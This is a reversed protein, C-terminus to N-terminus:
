YLNVINAYLVFWCCILYLLILYWIFLLNLLLNCYILNSFLNAAATVAARIVTQLALKTQVAPQVQHRSWVRGLGFAVALLNPLILYYPLDFVAICLYIFVFVFVLILLFRRCVWLRYSALWCALQRDTRYPRDTRSSSVSTPCSTPRDSSTCSPQITSPVTRYDSLFDFLYIVFLDVFLVAFEAFKVAVFRSRSCILHCVSLHRSSNRCSLGPEPVTPRSDVASPRSLRDSSPYPGTLWNWNLRDPFPALLQCCGPRVGSPVTQVSSSPGLGTLHIASRYISNSVLYVSERPYRMHAGGSIAHARADTWNATRYNNSIPHIATRPDANRLPVRHINQLQLVAFAIPLDFILKCYIIIIFWILLYIFEAIDFLYIYIFQWIVIFWIFLYCILKSCIFKHCEICYWLIPLYIFWICCWILDASILDFWCDAATTLILDILIAFWIAFPLDFVFWFPAWFPTRIHQM